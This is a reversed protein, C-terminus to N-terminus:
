DKQLTCVVKRALFDTISAPLDELLSRTRNEKYWSRFTLSKVSLETQQNM